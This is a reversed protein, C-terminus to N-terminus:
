PRNFAYLVHIGVPHHVPYLHGIVVLHCVHVRQDLGKGFVAEVNLALRLEQLLILSLSRKGRM